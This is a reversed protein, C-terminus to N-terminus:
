EKLIILDELAFYLAVHLIAILARMTDYLCAYAVLLSLIYDGLMIKFSDSHVM